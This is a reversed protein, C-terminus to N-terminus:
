ERGRGLRDKVREIHKEASKEMVFGANKFDMRRVHGGLWARGDVMRTMRDSLQDALDVLLRPPRVSALVTWAFSDRAVSSTFRLQGAKRGNHTEGELHFVQLNV